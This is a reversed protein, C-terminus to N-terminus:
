APLCEDKFVTLLKMGRILRFSSGQRIHRLVAPPDDLLAGCLADVGRKLLVPTFPTSPGLVLTYASPCLSLLEDFTHNIFSSATLAVVDARPLYRRAEEVGDKGEWPSRSVVWLNRLEAKLKGLFPFEGVVAVNRGRGKELILRSANVEHFKLGGTDLLSNLAAMGLSAELLRDSLALRALEAAPRDLLGGAGRVWAGHCPDRFTSSIGWRLSRVVTDFPGIYIEEVPIGSPLTGIIEELSKM